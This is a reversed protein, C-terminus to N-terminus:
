DPLMDRRSRYLYYGVCLLLVSLAAFAASLGIEFLRPQPRRSAYWAWPIRVLFTSLLGQMMVFTTRGVGNFYGTFCYAISLLFCEISTAKLFEAAAAIVEAESSKVFLTALLDGHFFTICAIMGGLAAATAM